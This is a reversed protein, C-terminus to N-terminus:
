CCVEAVKLLKESEEKTMSFSWTSVSMPDFGPVADNPVLPNYVIAIGDRKSLDAAELDDLRSSEQAGTSSGMWITCASVPTPTDEEESAAAATRTDPSQSSEKPLSESPRKTVSASVASAEPQPHESTHAVSEAQGSAEREQAEARARNAADAPSASAKLSKEPEDDSPSQILAPWRAGKPWTSIGM